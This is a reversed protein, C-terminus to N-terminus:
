LWRDSIMFKPLISQTSDVWLLWDAIIKGRGLGSLRSMSCGVWLLWEDKLQL